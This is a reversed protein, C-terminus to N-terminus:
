RFGQRLYFGKYEGLSSDDFVYFIIDRTALASWSGSSKISYNGPHTPSSNDVGVNLNNSADGGSYEVTLCYESGATMSVPSSFTFPQLRYSTTLTTIDVADSTALATGTPVSNTGFTGSHAYLSATVNGTPSGTKKLYWMAQYINATRGVRFSQGFGSTNSATYMFETSAFNTEPYHAVLSM